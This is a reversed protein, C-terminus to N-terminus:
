GMSSRSAPSAANPLVGAILGNVIATIIENVHRRTSKGGIVGNVISRLLMVKDALWQAELIYRLGGVIGADVDDGLGL